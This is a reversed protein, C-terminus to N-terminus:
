ETRIKISQGNSIKLIYNGKLIKNIPIIQRRSTINGIYIRKGLMDIISYNLPIPPEKGLDITFSNGSIPNPFVAIAFPEGNSFDVTRLQSYIAHGDRDIQQLRYYNLAKDPQGHIFSYNNVTSSRGATVKGITLWNISNTSHQVNFHDNNIEQPTQWQLLVQQGQKEANFSILQVPLTTAATVKRIRQNGADSFFINGTKDITIQAPFNLEAAIAPGGDGSYGMNGNGAVTTIIGTSKDIRRIRYSDVDSIFINGSADVAVISSNFGANTALIGEGNYSTTGNGAVTTIIGTSGDVKRIRFYYDDAIYINGSTDTVVDWPSGLQASTAPGGDGSYGQTGIGAITTIIGTLADIKRIRYTGEEAIFMNGKADLAIGHPRVVAATAPGGDGLATGTNGGAITTIIGTSGDIKRVNFNSADSIFINGSADMVMDTPGGLEAAIAPGGDGSYGWVGTGAITTIIGTVADVKRVRYNAGDAIFVNGTADIAVSGPGLGANLALGGDGSYRSIGNGAVTTIIQTEARLFLFLAFVLLRTKYFTSKLM